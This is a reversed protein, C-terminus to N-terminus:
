QNRAISARFLAGDTGTATLSPLGQSTLYAALEAAMRQAGGRNFHCDDLFASTDRPIRTAVDFCELHADRCTELLTVNYSYMARAADATNVFGLPHRTPGVWGCWLLRDNQPELDARWLTPQTLFLCRLGASRCEAGLAVIRSEYERLGVDLHPLPVTPSQQRRRRALVIYEQFTLSPATWTTRLTRAREFLRLHHRNANLLQRGEDMQTELFAQTPAGRLALATLLDNIGALIIVLNARRVIPSTKLLRLHHATTNGSVGANGVWVSAAPAARRLGEMLLQPWTESEDLGICETTSGGVAVVGYGSSGAPPEPGRLGYHNYRMVVKRSLGPFLRPDNYVIRQTVPPNLESHPHVRFIPLRLVLEGVTLALVVSCTTLCYPVIWTLKKRLALLLLNFASTVIWIVSLDRILRSIRSGAAAGPLVDLFVALPLLLSVASAIVLLGLVCEQAAADQRAFRNPRNRDSFEANTRM